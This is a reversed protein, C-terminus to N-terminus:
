QIPSVSQSRIRLMYYYCSVSPCKSEMPGQWSCVFSNQFTRCWNLISEAVYMDAWLWNAQYRFCLSIEPVVSALSFNSLQIQWHVLRKLGWGPIKMLPSSRRVLCASRYMNYHFRCRLLSGKRCWSSCHRFNTFRELQHSCVRCMDYRYPISYMIVHIYRTEIVHTQIQSYKGLKHTNSTPSINVLHLLAWCTVFEYFRWDVCSSQHSQNASTSVSQHFASM